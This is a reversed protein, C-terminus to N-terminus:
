SALPVVHLFLEDGVESSQLILKVRRLIEKGSLGAEIFYDNGVHAAARLEERRKTVKLKARLLDGLIM